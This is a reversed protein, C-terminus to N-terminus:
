LDWLVTKNNQKLCNDKLHNKFLLVRLLKWISRQNENKCTFRFKQRTYNEGAM